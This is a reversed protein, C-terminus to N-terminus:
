VAAKGEVEGVVEEYIPQSHMRYMGNICVVTSSGTSIGSSHRKDGAPSQM